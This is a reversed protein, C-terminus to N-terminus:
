LTFSSTKAARPKASRRRRASSRRPRPAPWHCPWSSEEGPLLAGRQDCSRPGESSWDPSSKALLLHHRGRPPLIRILAAPLPQRDREGDRLSDATLQEQSTGGLM